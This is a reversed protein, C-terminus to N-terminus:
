QGLGRQGLGRQHGPLWTEEGGGRGLPVAPSLRRPSPKAAEQARGGEKDRTSMAQLEPPM